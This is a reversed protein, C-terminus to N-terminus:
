WSYYQRQATVPRDPLPVWLKRNYRKQAQEESLRIRTAEEKLVVSISTYPLRLIDIRGRARKLPKAGYTGRGVWAQDIYMSTRDTVVKRKGDKLEIETKQGKTGEVEGLGMGRKVIAENRAHELHEKVDKAAKKKSFRMQVIADELSKGQIQRALPGLKKVSTKIFHSKTLNERETRKIKETKSLRGRGHIDRIVMKREWRKRNAPDPDLVAAMSQPDRTTPGMAKRRVRQGADEEEEFISSSALDGRVLEPEAAPKRKLHEATIPNDLGGDQPRRPNRRFLGLFTRRQSLTSSLSTLLFPSAPSSSLNVAARALRTSPAPLTM